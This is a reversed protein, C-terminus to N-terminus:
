KAGQYWSGPTPYNKKRADEEQRWNVVGHWDWSEGKIGEQTLDQGSFVRRAINSGVEVEALCRWNIFKRKKQVM